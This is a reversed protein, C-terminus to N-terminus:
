AQSPGGPQGPAPATAASAAGAGQATKARAQAIADTLQQGVSLFKSLEAGGKSAAFKDIANHVPALALILGGVGGIMTVTQAGLGLKTGAFILGATLAGVILRELRNPDM